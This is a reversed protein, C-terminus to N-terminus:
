YFICTVAICGTAHMKTDALRGCFQRIAQNGSQRIAQNGSQRVAQRFAQRGQVRLQKCPRVRRKEDYFWVVAAGRAKQDHNTIRDITHKM